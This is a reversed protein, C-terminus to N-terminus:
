TLSQKSIMFIDEADGQAMCATQEVDFFKGSSLWYLAEQLIGTFLHCIPANSERGSCVPCTQAKWLFHDEQEEISIKQDSFRTFWDALAELGTRMKVALPLLRFALDTIGLAPGFERLGYKFSARGVRLALGRGARPGYINELAIHIQRVHAFPFDLDLNNAPYAQLLTPLAAVNLVANIGNRGLVEELAQLIIRGMKNPYFLAKPPAAADLNIFDVSTQNQEPLTAM